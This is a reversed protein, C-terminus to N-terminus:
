IFLHFTNPNQSHIYTQTYAISHDAAEKNMKYIKFFKTTKVHISSMYIIRIYRDEYSCNIHTGFEINYIIEEQIMM